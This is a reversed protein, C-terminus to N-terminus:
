SLKVWAGDAQQFRVAWEDGVEAALQEALRRGRTFFALRSERDPFTAGHGPDDPDFLDDYEQAWEDLQDGTAGPVVAHPDPNETGGADDTWWLPYCRWELAVRLERKGGTM